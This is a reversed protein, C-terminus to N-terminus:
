REQQAQRLGQRASASDVEGSSGAQAARAGLLAFCRLGGDRYRGTTAERFVSVCRRTAAEPAAGAARRCRGRAVSCFAEVYGHWHPYDAGRVAGKDSIEVVENQCLAIGYPATWVM